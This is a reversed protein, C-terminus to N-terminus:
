ASLYETSKFYVDYKTEKKRQIAQDGEPAEAGALKSLALRRRM